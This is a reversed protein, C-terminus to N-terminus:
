PPPTQTIVWVNVATNTASVRRTGASDVYGDAVLMRIVMAVANAHPRHRYPIAELVDHITFPEGQMLAVADLVREVSQQNKWRRERTKTFSNMVLGGTNGAVVLRRSSEYAGM